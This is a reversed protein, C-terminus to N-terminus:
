EGRLNKGWFRLPHEILQALSNINLWLRTGRTQLWKPIKGRSLCDASNNQIGPIHKATIKLMHKRKFFEIGALLKFGLGASCRSKRLWAVVDTNDSFLTVIM